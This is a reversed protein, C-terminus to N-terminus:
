HTHMVFTCRTQFGEAELEAAFPLEQFANIIINPKCTVLIRRLREWPSDPDLNTYIIGLRLCALM